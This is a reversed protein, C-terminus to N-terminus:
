ANTAPKPPALVGGVRRSGGDEGGTLGHGVKLSSWFELIAGLRLRCIVEGRQPFRIEPLDLIRKEWTGGRGKEGPTKAIAKSKVDQPPVKKASRLVSRLLRSM